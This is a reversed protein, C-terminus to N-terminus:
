ENILELGLKAALQDKVRKCFYEKCVVPRNEYMTCEYLGKEKDFGLYKCVLPIRIGLREGEPTPYPMVDCHHYSFWRGLEKKDNVGQDPLFFFASSCCYGCRKCELEVRKRDTM